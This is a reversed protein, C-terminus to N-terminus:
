FIELDNLRTYIGNLKIIEEHNGKEVIRGKDLVIIQNANKVTSLRHAIVITTRNRMLNGIADRVALESENDLASTAEDLILIPPNKLIARAISIRQKEGLSLKSGGEGISTQYGHKQKIIFNHANALRSAVEVDEKSIDKQGFVINNYITDNFLITQQNVYGFLNRLDHISYNKLIIEDLLIKGESPDYFRPILDVLTSKGSGSHGVIAIVEGKKITLNINSLVNIKDSGYSFSVDKFEISNKFDAIKVPNEIEEVKYRFNLITNIRNVSAMGKIINYYGNSFSRVPSIIQTFVALYGIFVPSTFTSGPALVLKVGVWMIILITSVTVLDSFPTVFVRKRWAKELLITYYQNIKFFRNKVFEESNYAKIVKIGGLIENLVSILSGMQKQGKLSARKLSKGVRTVIFASLPFIVIIFLTLKLSMVCLVYLYITILIPDKFLVDLSNIISIEIEKVDLTMKSIIDGRKQTYFYSLDFDLIKNLLTNRIDKVIHTRLHITYSRGLYFFVNKLLTFVAVIVIIYLLADIQGKETIIKGLFYNFNQQIVTANFRFPIPNEIVQQKSFLIGLFPIIMTFSIVSFIAALLNFLISLFAKLKYPILYQIINKLGPM